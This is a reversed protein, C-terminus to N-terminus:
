PIPYFSERPTGELGGAGGAQGQHKELPGRIKPFSHPDHQIKYKERGAQTALGAPHERLVKYSFQARHDPNSGSHEVVRTSGTQAGACM